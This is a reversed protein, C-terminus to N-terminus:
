LVLLNSSDRGFSGKSKQNDSGKSKDENVGLVFGSVLIRVIKM